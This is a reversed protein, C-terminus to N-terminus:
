PESVSCRYEAIRLGPRAPARRGAPSVALLGEDEAYRDFGAVTCLRRAVTARAGGREEPTRASSEIDARRVSFLALQQDACWCVFEAFGRAPTAPQARYGALFGVLVVREGDAFCPDYSVVFKSTEHPM